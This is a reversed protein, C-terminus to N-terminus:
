RAICLTIRADRTSARPIQRVDAGEYRFRARNKDALLIVDDTEVVWISNTADADLAVVKGDSMHFFAGDHVLLWHAPYPVPLTRVVM